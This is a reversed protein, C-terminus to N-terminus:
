LMENIKIVKFGFISRLHLSSLLACFPFATGGNEIVNKLGVEALWLSNSSSVQLDRYKIGNANYKTLVVEVAYRTASTPALEHCV